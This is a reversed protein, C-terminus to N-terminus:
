MLSLPRLCRWLGGAFFALHRVSSIFNLDIFSRSGLDFDRSLCWLTFHGDLIGKLHTGREIYGVDSMRELLNQLVREHVITKRTTQALTGLGQVLALSVKAHEDLRAGFGLVDLEDLGETGLVFNVQDLNSISLYESRPSTQALDVFLAVWALDDPARTDDDLVVTDLALPEM